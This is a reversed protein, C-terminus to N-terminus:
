SRPHQSLPASASPNRREQRIDLLSALGLCVVIQAIVVPISAWLPWTTLANKLMFGYGILFVPLSVGALGIFVGRLNRTVRDAIHETM